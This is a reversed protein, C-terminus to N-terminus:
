QGRFTIDCEGRLLGDKGREPNMIMARGRDALARTQDSLYPDGEFFIEFHQEDSDPMSLEYHIHAPNGGGPYPGPKITEYEYRGDESSRLYAYLRPESSSGSANNYRGYIDTHYVYLKVGELPTEGDAAFVTGSVILREGREKESAIVTRWPLEADRTTILLAGAGDSCKIFILLPIVAFSFLSTSRM